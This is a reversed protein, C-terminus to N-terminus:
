RGKNEAELTLAFHIGNDSVAVIRLTKQNFYVPQGQLTDVTFGTLESKLVHFTTASNGFFAADAVTKLSSVGTSILTVERGCVSAKENRALVGHIESVAGALQERLGM